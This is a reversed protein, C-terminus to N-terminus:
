PRENTPIRGAAVADNLFVANALLHETHLLGSDSDRGTPDDIFAVLHRILAGIYRQYEVNQWSNPSYKEAGHTLVRGLGIYASTPILEMLLKGGDAKISQDRHDVATNILLRADNPTLENAIQFAQKLTEDSICCQNSKKL